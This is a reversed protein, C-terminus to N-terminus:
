RLSSPPLVQIARLGPLMWADYPQYKDVIITSGRFASVTKAPPSDSSREVVPPAEQVTTVDGRELEAGPLATVSLPVSQLEEEWRRATVTVPDLVTEDEEPATGPAAAPAAGGGEPQGGEEPGAATAPCLALASVLAATLWGAVSGTGAIPEPRSRM